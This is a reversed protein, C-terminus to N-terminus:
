QKLESIWERILYQAIAPKPPLLLKNEPNSVFTEFDKCEDSRKLSEKVEDVSVWKADELETKDITLKTENTVALCGIMLSSAPGPWHQSSLYRHSKIELGIEEAIERRVADEITEGIELFGAVATYMSKYHGNHHVLVCATNSENTLLTIVVPSTQPYHHLRCSPCKMHWGSVFRHLINGCNPCFRFKRNWRLIGVGQSAINVQSPPLIFFSVRTNYFVGGTKLEVEDAVAKIESPLALAFSCKSDVGINLLASSKILHDEDEFYQRVDNYSVFHIAHKGDQINLLPKEKVFLVFRANNLERTCLADDEKLKQLRQSREVYGASLVNNSHIYSKRQFIGSSIRILRSANSQLM